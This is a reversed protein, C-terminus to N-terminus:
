SDVPELFKKIEVEELHAPELKEGNIWKGYWLWNLFRRMTNQLSILSPLLVLIFFSAFLLGFSVSIAMPILFQAQVSTELLLPLLGLVTTITTLLIPRFRSVAADIIADSISMGNKINLNFQNVLVISDNVIIGILAIVGYWSMISVVTANMIHGWIAGFVGMPILLFVVLSQVFSHFSLAILFFMIIVAISVYIKIGDTVKKQSYSQGTLATAVSGYKTLTPDLVTENVKQNLIQTEQNPDKLEASITIERAGDIHNIVVSGRTISYDVLESVPYEGQPTRIRLEDFNDLSSRDEETLKVWVKVEDKGRQLRQVEQGFFAQRIQRAIERSNLGLLYAKEKLKINIERLGQPDNDAIDRLEDFNALGAKIEEKATQLEEMNRGVITLSVPKGFFTAGFESKTTNYLTGVDSKVMNAFVLSNINRIESPKMYVAISGINSGSNAAGGRSEAGQGVKKVVKEIIDQEMGRANVISDNLNWISDEILQLTESTEMERSGAELEININFNDSEINPFFAFRAVGGGLAGISLIFFAIYVAVALFNNKVFLAIFPQYLKFKVFDFAGDIRKRIIGKEAPKGRLAKSHALHTPLIFIVELLSFLLTMIVVFAMEGIDFRFDIFMIPVFATVTTAIAFFVSRLVHLTGDISATFPKEGEEYYQYIQEAVVIGDDVLIGVVVICGFLSIVNITVGTYFAVIFMGAFCFPISMAVWFALRWNLFFTLSLIVLITGILGNEILMDIRERLNDTRDRVTALQVNDYRQNFDDVYNRCKSAIDIINEGLIKNVTIIVAPKGNVYSRQPNEAWENKITGIESVTVKNGDPTSAVVVDQLEEAYYNKNELRILIEEDDTKISGATLDLNANGIAQSVQDFSLGYTRLKEQSLSMVIEEAPFGSIEIQSIKSTSRFFNKLNKYARDFLSDDENIQEKDPLNRLEDEIDRAINKLTRLDVDGSLSMFYASEIVPRKSVVPPELGLPFSNIREVANKVDELAEDTPYGDEVEITIAGSNEKSTSQFRALGQIGTLNEEIRRVVGLEIEEPSAGPYVLEINITESESEPFFSSQIFFATIIAGFGIVLIKIANSWIPYKIFFAIFNRM